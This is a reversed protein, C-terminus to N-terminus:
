NFRCDDCHPWSEKHSQWWSRAARMHKTPMGEGGNMLRPGFDVGALQEVAESAMMATAGDPSDLYACHFARGEQNGSRGTGAAAMGSDARQLKSNECSNRRLGGRVGLERLALSAQELARQDDEKAFMTLLERNAHKLRLDGIARAANARVLADDHALSRRLFSECGKYHLDRMGRMSMWRTDTHPTREALALLAPGADPYQRTLELLHLEKRALDHEEDFTRLAEPLPLLQTQAAVSVGLVSGFLLTLMRRM